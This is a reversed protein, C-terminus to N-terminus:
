PRELTYEVDTSSEEGSEVAVSWNKNFRYRMRLANVAEFLGLGFSVYLDPSLYTGIVFRTEDRNDAGELAVDDIGLQRGIQGALLAGGRLALANSATNLYQRDADSASTMSRGTLLYSFADTSPLPPDSFVVLEPNALDGRLNVGVTQTDIVRQASVDIAPNSIEGGSFILRGRSVELKQGWAEYRGDVVALEGTATTVSDPEDFISLRGEINGTLGYADIEVDEGLLLDVDTTTRIKNDVPKPETYQSVIVQDPSVRVADGVVLPAIRAYPVGVNGSFTLERGDIAVTVDPSADIRLQPLDLITIGSGDLALKGALTGGGFSLDGEFGARGSGSTFQGNVGLGQERATMTVDVNTLSLGFNPLDARADSLVLDGTFVPASVTGGVTLNANLKGVVRDLDQSFLPLLALSRTDARLTGSVPLAEPATSRDVPVNVTIDATGKDGLVLNVLGDIRQDKLTVSLQGIADEILPEDSDGLSEELLGETLQATLSGSATALDVGRLSAQASVLGSVAPVGPILPALRAIELDTLGATADLGASPEFQGEICVSERGAAICLPQLLVTDRSLTLPAPSALYWSVQREPTLEVATVEGQWQPANWGGALQTTLQVGESSANISVGHSSALGSANIALAEVERGALDLASARLEMASPTQDSGDVTAELSIENAAYSDWRLQQGTLSLQMVPRERTGGMTGTTQFAGAGDPHLVSMDDARLNWALDLTEGLRGAVELQTGDGDFEVENVVWEQGDFAVACDGRWRYGRLTGDLDGLRANFTKGDVAAELAFGFEGPWDAFETSPDLGSARLNLTAAPSDDLQINGTGQVEGGLLAAALSDISIAKTSGTGAANLRTAPVADGDAVGELRFSFRSTNGDVAISGSDSRVVPEETLPWQLNQWSARLDTQGSALDTVAVAGTVTLSERRNQLAVTLPQVTLRGDDLAMAGTATVAEPLFDPLYVTGTLTGESGTGSISLDTGLRLDPWQSHLTNLAREPLRASAQWIPVDGNFDASGALTAEAPEAFAQRVEVASRSLRADLQGGLRPLDAYELQWRLAADANYDSGTQLRLSGELTLQEGAAALQEIRVSGDETTVAFALTDVTVAASQEPPLFRIGAIAVADADIAIPLTISEPWEPPGESPAQVADPDPEILVSTASLRHVTLQRRLLALPDWDLLVHEVTGRWGGAQWRLGRLELPGTLRGEVREVTAFEEVLPLAFRLVLNLGPTTMLLGAIALVALLLAGAAGIVLRRTM